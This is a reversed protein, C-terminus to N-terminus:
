GERGVDRKVREEGGDEVLMKRLDVMRMGARLWGEPAGGYPFPRENGTRVYGCREYWAMLETRSSVVDIEMCLVGWKQVAYREAHQLLFNGIGRKQQSPAICLTGLWASSPTHHRIYCTALITPSPSSSPTTNTETAPIAVLMITDPSTIRTTIDSLPFIDVRTSTLFVQNTTDSNFADNVLRHITPADAPTAERVDLTPSPPKTRPETM